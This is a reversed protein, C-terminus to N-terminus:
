LIGSQKFTQIEKAKYGISKLIRENDQGLKPVSLAPKKGNRNRSNIPSRIIRVIHDKKKDSEFQNVADELVGFDELETDYYVEDISRVKASPVTSSLMELLEESDLESVATQIAQEVETRHIIRYRMENYSSGLKIKLLASLKKWQLDSLTAILVRKDDKTTFIKHPSYGDHGSGQRQPVRNTMGFYTLWYGNWYVSMDLLSIEIFKGKMTKGRELLSSLVKITGYAAAGLDISPNGVRVPEGNREGTLSMMGSMAQAVADFAPKNFYKSGSSFGKISCYILDHNLKRLVPYSFGLRNSVHPGMNEIFVDIKKTSILRHIIDQGVDSKLNLSLSKKGLNYNLFGWPSVSRSPDGTIPQEIKIIDAGLDHLLAGMAPGAVFSSVEVVILGELPLVLKFQVDKKTFCEDL